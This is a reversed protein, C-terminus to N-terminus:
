RASGAKPVLRIEDKVPAAAQPEPVDPQQEEGSTDSDEVPDPITWETPFERVKRM